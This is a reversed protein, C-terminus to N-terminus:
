RPRRVLEGLWRGVRGWFSLEPPLYRSAAIARIRSFFLERCRYFQLVSNVAGIVFWGGLYLLFHEPPEVRLVACTVMLSVMLLLFVVNPVAMIMGYASSSAQKADKASLGYWIGAWGLAAVDVVLMIAVALGTALWNVREPADMQTWFFAAAVTTVGILVLTAVVPWLFQRKLALWVGRAIEEPTLPTSLLLELTGGAKEEALRQSAAGAVGLKVTFYWVPTLIILAIVDFELRRKDLWFILMVLGLIIFATLGLGLWVWRNQFRNRQMLWLFPSQDLLTRRYAKRQEGAGYTWQRWREGLKLNSGKRAPKDQWSRPLIWSALGLWVWSLAHSVGLTIWFDTRVGWLGPGFGSIASTPSTWHLIRGWVEGPWLENALAALAPIGWLFFMATFAAGMSAHQQNRSFSSILVGLAGSFWLTNLLALSSQAVEAFRVGGMLMIVALVPFVTMLGFTTEILGALLKGLVIDHGKLDTLFLLGLTGERKEGSLCDCTRAVGVFMCYFMAFGTFAQFLERGPLRMRPNFAMTALVVGLIGVAILGFTFRGWYTGPRRAAVRLEREAVPPFTVRPVYALRRRFTSDAIGRGAGAVMRSPRTGRIELRVPWREPFRVRGGAVLSGGVASLTELYLLEAANEHRQSTRQCGYSWIGVSHIVSHRITRLGFCRRM